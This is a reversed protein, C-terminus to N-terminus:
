KFLNKFFNAITNFFGRIANLFAAFPNSSSGGSPQPNSPQTPQTTPETAPETTPETTPEEPQTVPKVKLLAFLAASEPYDMTTFMEDPYAFGFMAGVQEYEEAGTEDEITLTGAVVSRNFDAYWKGNRIMALVEDTPAETMGFTEMVAAPDSLDLYYGGAEADEASSAVRVWPSAAVTAEDAQRLAAQAAEAAIMVYSDAFPFMISAPMFGVCWVCLNGGPNYLFGRNWYMDGATASAQEISALVTAREEESLEDISKGSDKEWVSILKQYTKEAAVQYYVDKDLYYDGVRIDVTNQKVKVWEVGVERVCHIWVMSQSAGQDGNLEENDSEVWVRRADFDIYWAASNYVALAAAIQEETLDDRGAYLYSFDLWLDGKQLGEPSTPIRVWPAGPEEPQTPATYQKVSAKLMAGMPDLNNDMYPYAYSDTVPEGTEQNTYHSVYRYQYLNGGPNVYFENQRFEEMFTQAYGDGVENQFQALYEEKTMDNTPDDDASYVGIVYDIYRDLFVDVDIYWDGDQLGEMSTAVPLWEVGVEKVAFWFIYGSPEVTVTEDTGSTTYAALSTYTGKIKFNSLNIFWTGASMCEATHLGAYGQGPQTVGQCWDDNFELYLEGKQLGEPSTPIPDWRDGPEEAFAVAACSLALVLALLVSLLKKTTKM